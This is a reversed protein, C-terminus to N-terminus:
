GAVENSQMLEPNNDADEIMSDCIGHNVIVVLYQSM